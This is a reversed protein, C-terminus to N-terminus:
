LVPTRRRLSGLLLSYCGVADALATVLAVEAVRGGWVRSDRYLALAYPLALVVALRSRRSVALALGIVALDFAASRPSLFTRAFLLSRRLEPVARVIDAFYRLRRREGIFGAAGRPFIAHHVKAEECFTTRAGSRRVKWGFLVDEAMHPAGIGPELWAVFGGAREFASRHVFLNATEYLGVEGGVGVWRDFPGRHAGPDPGVPGQVLDAGELARLGAALWGKTPFCDADTFALLPAKAQGAGLNRAEGPGAPGAEIVRVALAASAAVAATQGDPGADVVIVEFASATDQGALAALTGGLTAGASRAPVIVSIVPASRESMGM